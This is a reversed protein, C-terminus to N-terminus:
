IYPRVNKSICSLYQLDKPMFKWVRIIKEETELLEMFKIQNSDKNEYIKEFRDGRIKDKYLNADASSDFIRMTDVNVFGHKTQVVCFNSFFSHM